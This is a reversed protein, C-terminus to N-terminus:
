LDDQTMVLADLLQGFSATTLECLDILRAGRLISAHPVDEGDFFSIMLSAGSSLDVCLHIADHNRLVCWRAPLGDSLFAAQL